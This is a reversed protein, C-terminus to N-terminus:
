WLDGLDAKLKVEFQPSRHAGDPARGPNYRSGPGGIAAFVDALKMRLPYAFLFKPSGPVHRWSPKLEAMRAVSKTKFMRYCQPASVKNGGDDLWHDTARAEGLFAFNSATYVGGVHPRGTEPNIAGTDAYSFICDTDPANTKIWKLGKSLFQSV